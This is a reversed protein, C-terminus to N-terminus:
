RRKLEALRAFPSSKAVTVSAPKKAKANVPTSSKASKEAPELQRALAVPLNLLIEEEIREMVNMEAGCLIYDEDASELELPPLESESRVVVLRSEIALDYRRPKLTGPDPVLIWGSIICKVCRKQSGAADTAENGALSYSIEGEDGALCEALRRLEAPAFHGSISQKQRTFRDIQIITSM